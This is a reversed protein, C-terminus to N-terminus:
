GGGIENIVILLNKSFGVADNRSLKPAGEM